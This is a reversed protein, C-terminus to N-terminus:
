LERNLALYGKREGSLHLPTSVLRSAARLLAHAVMWVVVSLAAARLLGTRTELRM